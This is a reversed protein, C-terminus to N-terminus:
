ERKKNKDDGVAFVSIKKGDQLKVVSVTQDDSIAQKTCITHLKCPIYTQNYCLHQIM